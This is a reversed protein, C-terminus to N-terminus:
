ADAGTRLFALARAQYAAWPEWNVTECFGVGTVAEAAPSLGLPMLNLLEAKNVMAVGVPVESPVALDATEFSADDIWPATAVTLDFPRDLAQAEGPLNTATYTWSTAQMVQHLTPILRDMALGGILREAMWTKGDPTRRLYFGYPTLPNVQIADTQFAAATFAEGNDLNFECWNWGDIPKPPTRVAPTQAMLLQHDIWASGSRAAYSVGGVVVTGQAKLQPWSYYLGPKPNPTIGDTGQLFFATEVPMDTTVQLDLSMAPDDVVVRLPLVDATGTLRDPGCAYVFGDDDPFRVQGGTKPWQVNLPRRYIRSGGAGSITVTAANWVLQCDADRWGIEAQLKTSILRCRLMDLLVAIRVPGQPGEADLHCALWYWENGSKLHMRHDAPFSLRAPPPDDGHGAGSAQLKYIVAARQADAMGGDPRLKGASALLQDFVAPDPRLHAPLSNLQATLAEAASMTVM